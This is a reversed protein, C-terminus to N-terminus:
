EKDRSHEIIGKITTHHLLQDKKKIEETQDLFCTARDEVLMEVEIKLIMSLCAEKSLCIAEKDLEM